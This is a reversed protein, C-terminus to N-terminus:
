METETLHVTFGKYSKSGSFNIVDFKCYFLEFKQPCPILNSLLNSYSPNQIIFLNQRYSKVREM